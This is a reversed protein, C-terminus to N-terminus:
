SNTIFYIYKRPWPMIMANERWNIECQFYKQGSSKDINTVICIYLQSFYCCLIYVYYMANYGAGQNKMIKRFYPRAQSHLHVFTRLYISKMNNQLSFSGSAGKLFVTDTYLLQIKTKCSEIYFRNHIEYLKRKYM